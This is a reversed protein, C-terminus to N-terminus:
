SGNRSRRGRRHRERALRVLEDVLTGYPLGSEAWLRPAMSGRTMGPITNVELVFLDGAETYLFDVRALGDCGLAVFAECAMKRVRAAVDDGITAPIEVRTRPDNCKADYTLFEQAHRVEGVLSARPAPGGIVAVELERAHEVAREIVIRPGYSRALELAPPLESPRQVRSVGISSGLEAPKVFCPYGISDGIMALAEAGGLTPEGALVVYPCQPLHAQALARKMLAKDLGMASAAVGSGVYPIDALEFLGQLTGDEGLPGHVLPFAVDLSCIPSGSGARVLGAGPVPIVWVKDVDPQNTCSWTGDREIRIAIPRYQTADIAGLVSQASACSVDHEPSRGGFLIAINTTQHM